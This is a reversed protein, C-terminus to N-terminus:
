LICQIYGYLFLFTMLVKQSFYLVKDPDIVQYVAKLVLEVYSLEWM